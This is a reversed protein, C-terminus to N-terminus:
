PLIIGRGEYGFQTRVKLIYLGKPYASLDFYQEYDQKNSSSIKKGKADFINIEFEDKSDINVYVQKSNKDQKIDFTLAETKINPIIHKKTNPFQSISRGLSTNPVVPCEEIKATFDSGAQVTFGEGLNIHSGAQFLVDVNNNLMDNNASISNSLVFDLSGAGSLVENEINLHSMDECCKTPSFVSSQVYSNVVRPTEGDYTEGNFKAFPFKVEREYCNNKITVIAKYIAPAFEHGGNSRGDWVVGNPMGNPSSISMYDITSGYINIFKISIFNANGINSVKFPNEPTHVGNSVPNLLGLTKTCARNQFECRNHVAVRDVYVGTIKNAFLFYNKIRIVLFEADDETNTWAHYIQDWGNTKSITKKAIQKEDKYGTSTAKATYVHVDPDKDSEEMKSLRLDIIYVANKILKKSLRISLEGDAHSGGSGHQWKTDWLGAYVDGSYPTEYGFDNTSNRFDILECSNHTVDGNCFNHNQPLMQYWLASNDIHHGPIEDASPNESADFHDDSFYHSAKNFRWDTPVSYGNGNPSGPVRTGTNQMIEFDGNPVLNEGFAFLEPLLLFIIIFIFKFNM